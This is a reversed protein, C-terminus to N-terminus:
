PCMMTERTDNGTVPNVGNATPLKCLYTLMDKRFVVDSWDTNTINTNKFQANNVFAGSLVANTLDAEEFNGSELDSLTMNAGVFTANQCLSSFMSVGTLNAGDFNTARLNAKTFKIKRLDRKSMNTGALNESLGGGGSVAGAELPALLLVASSAVALVCAAASRAFSQEPGSSYRM